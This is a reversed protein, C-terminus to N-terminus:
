LKRNYHQFCQVILSESEKNLEKFHNFYEVIVNGKKILNTIEIDKEINNSDSNYELILSFNYPVVTTKQYIIDIKIQHHYNDSFHTYKLIEFNDNVYKNLHHSIENQIKLILYQEAMERFCKFFKGLFLYLKLKLM